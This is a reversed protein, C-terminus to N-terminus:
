NSEDKEKKYQEGMNKLNKRRTTGKPRFITKRIDRGRHGQSTKPTVENNRMEDRLSIVHM